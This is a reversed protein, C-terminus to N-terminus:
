KYHERIFDLAMAAHRHLTGDLIMKQTEEDLYAAPAQDGFGYEYYGHPMGDANSLHVTVGAERLMGAYAEGEKRLADIEATRIIATPLGRLDEPKAFIPSATIKKADEPRIYLENFVVSIPGDLNGSGKEAYTASWDLSPYNLIQYDYLSEGKEKAYLCVAAALTAGASNGFVSIHDKDFGFEEAHDRLYVTADYADLLACPYMYDPTKRYDISAINVKLANQMADWMADDLACGGFLFGGGHFGILLPAHEGSAPYYVMDIDRGELPLVHRTGSVPVTKNAARMGGIQSLVEKKVAEIIDRMEQEM